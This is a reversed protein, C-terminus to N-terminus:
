ESIKKWSDLNNKLLAFENKYDHYHTTGAEYFGFKKLLKICAANKKNVRAPVHLNPFNSFLKEFFIECFESAYGRGKFEHSLIIIFEVDHGPMAFSGDIMPEQHQIGGIGVLQESDNEFILYAGSNSYTKSCRISLEIDQTADIGALFEINEKRAYLDFVHNKNFEDLLQMRLRKSNLANNKKM